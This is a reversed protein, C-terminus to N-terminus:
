RASPGGAWGDGDLPGVAGGHPRDIRRRDLRDKQPDVAQDDIRLVEFPKSDFLYQSYNRRQLLFEDGAARMLSARLSWRCSGVRPPRSCHGAAEASEITARDITGEVKDRGAMVFM